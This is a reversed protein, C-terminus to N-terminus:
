EFVVAIPLLADIVALLWTLIPLVETVLIPPAWAQDVIESPRKLFFTSSFTIPRSKM